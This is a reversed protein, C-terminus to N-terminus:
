SHFLGALFAEYSISPDHVAYLTAKAHRTGALAALSNYYRVPKVTAQILFLFLYLYDM